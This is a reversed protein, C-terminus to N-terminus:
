AMNRHLEVLNDDVRRSRDLGFVHEFDSLQREHRCCHESIRDLMSSTAEANVRRAASGATTAVDPRVTASSGSLREARDDL